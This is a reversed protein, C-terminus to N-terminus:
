MSRKCDHDGSDPERRPMVARARMRQTLSGPRRQRDAVPSKQEGARQLRSIFPACFRVSGTAACASADSLL